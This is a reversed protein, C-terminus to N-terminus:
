NNKGRDLLRLAPAAVDAFRMTGFRELLTCYVGVPAPVPMQWLRHSKIGGVKQYQELTGLAPTEGVGSISEVVGRKADYVLVGMESGFNFQDRDTVSLALLTAVAADAANGGAKLIEFGAEASGTRGAVVVGKKGAAHWHLEDALLFGCSCEVAVMIAFLCRVRKM